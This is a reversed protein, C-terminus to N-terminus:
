LSLNNLYSVRYFNGNLMFGIHVANITIPCKDVLYKDLNLTLLAFTAILLFFVYRDRTENEENKKKFYDVLKKKFVTYSSFFIILFYNLRCILIQNSNILM